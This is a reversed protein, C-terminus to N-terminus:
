MLPTPSILGRELFLKEGLIKELHRRIMVKHPKLDMLNAVTTGNTLVMPHNKFKPISVNLTETRDFVSIPSKLYKSNVQTFGCGSVGDAKV